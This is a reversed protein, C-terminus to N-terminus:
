LIRVHLSLVTVQRYLFKACLATWSQSSCAGVWSYHIASRGRAGACHVQTGRDYYMPFNFLLPYPVNDDINEPRSRHSPRWDLQQDPDLPPGSAMMGSQGTQRVASLQPEFNRSRRDERTLPQQEGRSLRGSRGMGMMEM